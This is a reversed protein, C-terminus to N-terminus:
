AASPISELLRYDPKRALSTTDQGQASLRVDESCLCVTKWTAKLKTYESDLSPTDYLLVSTEFFYILWWKPM